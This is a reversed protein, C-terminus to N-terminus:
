LHGCELLGCASPFRELLLYWLEDSTIPMSSVPDRKVVVQKELEAIRTNLRKSEAKWDPKCM